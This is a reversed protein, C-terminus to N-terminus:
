RESDLFHIDLKKLKNEIEYKPYASKFRIIEKRAEGLQQKQLSSVIQKFWVDKEPYVARSLESGTYINRDNATSLTENKVLEDGNNAHEVLIFGKTVRSEHYFEESTKDATRKDLNPRKRSEYFETIALQKNKERNLRSTSIKLTDNAPDSGDIMFEVAEQNVQVRHNVEENIETVRHQSEHNLLPQWLSQFALVTLVFGGAVFSPLALRRWWQKVNLTGVFQRESALTKEEAFDNGGGVLERHSFAFIQKEISKDVDLDFDASLLSAAEKILKDSENNSLESMNNINSGRAKLAPTKAPSKM